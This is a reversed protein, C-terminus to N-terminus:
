SPLRVVLLVVDDRPDEGPGDDLVKSAVRRAIADADGGACESVIAALEEPAVIRAPAHADTVGDTYLVLADGPALTVRADTFTPQESIGPLTGRGVEEVHGGGRLVLPPPHGGVALTVRASREQDLEIRAFAVSCLQGPSQRIIAANLLGLIRSPDQERIAAARLTYRALATTAAAPAGKGVVDGVVVGWSDDENEFWDYFDGGVLHQEGAVRFDLAVELGPIDPLNQPLLSEQLTAAISQLSSEVRQRQTALAALVLATLSAIGIFAQALLLREDPSDGAFPGLDNETMPIAISAILVCVAIAGLQGFRLCAWILAPFVLFTIAITQTFILVTLGATLLLLALGELLRGRLQRFPWNTVAIMVAPAVLLDGGMDGLWWTRWTSGLDSAEIEGAALLSLVGCSASLTTSVVAGLAALALVDRVRALSPRFDVLQALLFSGVLAEITNGLTIGLVAYIPLGGTTLNALFAGAAVGPWLRRGWLVLAALAIGTPPWIATVSATEAALELGIKATGFYVAALAAIKAIYLARTEM